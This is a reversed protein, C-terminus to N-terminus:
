ERCVLITAQLVAHRHVSRMPACYKASVTETVASVLLQTVAPFLQVGALSGALIRETSHPIQGM